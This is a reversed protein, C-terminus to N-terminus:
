NKGLTGVLAWISCCVGAALMAAVLWRTRRVLSARRRFRREVAYLFALEQALWAEVDPAPPRGNREM